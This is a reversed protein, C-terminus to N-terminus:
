IIYRVNLNACSELRQILGPSHDASATSDTRRPMIRSARSPTRSLSLARGMKTKASSAFRCIHPFYHSSECYATCCTPIVVVLMQVPIHPCCLAVWRFAKNSLSHSTPKPAEEMILDAKNMNNLLESPDRICHADATQKCLLQLFKPKTLVDDILSFTPVLMIDDDIAGLTANPDQLRDNNLVELAFANQCEPVLSLFNCGHVPVLDHAFSVTTHSTRAYLLWLM